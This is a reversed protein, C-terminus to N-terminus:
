PKQRTTRSAQSANKFSARRTLDHFLESVPAGSRRQLYAFKQEVTLRRYDEDTILRRRPM